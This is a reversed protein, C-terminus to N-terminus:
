VFIAIMPLNVASVGSSASSRVRRMQYVVVVVLDVEPLGWPEREGALRTMWRQWCAELTRKWCVSLHTLRDELAGKPQRPEWLVLDSVTQNTSRWCHGSFWLRLERITTSIM